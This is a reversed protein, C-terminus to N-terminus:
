KKKLINKIENSKEKFGFEKSLKYVKYSSVVFTIYALSILVYEPYLWLKEWRFIKSLAHWISFLLIFVLAILFLTVYNRLSSGKSLSTMAIFTWIIALIGFSLSILSVIIEPDKVLNIITFIGFIIAIIEIVLFLTKNM